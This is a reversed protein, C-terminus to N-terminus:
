GPHPQSVCLVPRSETWASQNLRPAHANLRRYLTSTSVGLLIAARARDGNAMELARQIHEVEAREVVTALPALSGMESSNVLDSPKLFEAIHDADVTSGPALTAAAEIVHKFQRVNGPWGLSVSLTVASPSLQLADIERRSGRLRQLFVQALAPIDDLRDRLPPITIRAVGLRHLLDSRFRKERVLVDLDQNTAAILRFRSHQIREGGVTHFEGSELVRLLKAQTAVPLEAIEDLFLIGGNARAVIGNHRRTAGTFAGQEHGFLESEILSSTMAGCNVAIFPLSEGVLGRIARAAVDKGTGTEGQLLIPISSGAFREIRRYVTRMPQSEGVMGYFGESSRHPSVDAMQYALETM